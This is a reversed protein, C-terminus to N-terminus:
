KIDFSLVKNKTTVYVTNGEILVNKMDSFDGSTYRGKYAGDKGIIVVYKDTKSAVLVDKTETDTYVIDASNLNIPLDKIAFDQKKGSTFKRLAGGEALVYIDSDIRFSRPDKMDEANALYSTKKGYGSATRTHKYIQDQSLLYLTTGYSDIDIAKEWGDSAKKETISNDETDFEYVAPTDTLIAITKIKALVTAGVVNGEVKGTAQLTSVKKSIKEIKTIDGTKGIAYFSNGVPYIGVVDSKSTSALDAFTAPNAQTTMTITGLTTDIESLKQKAEKSFFKSKTMEDAMKRADELIAAAKQKENKGALTNAETLKGSLQEYKAQETKKTQADAQGKKVLFAYPILIIIVIIAVALYYTKKMEPLKKKTKKINALQTASGYLNGLNNLISSKTKELRAKSPSEESEKIRIESKYEPKKFKEDTGALKEDTEELVPVEERHFGEIEEETDMLVSADKGEKSVYKGYLAASKLKIFKVASKSKPLLTTTYFEALMAAGLRLYKFIKQLVNTTQEALIEKKTTGQLWIEDPEEDLTENALADPTLFEAIVAANQGYSGGLGEILDAVYGIAIKPHYKMVYKSVEDPTVSALIGSSLASIKDGEVIDGSTINVFTRLPNVSDGSMDETIHSEKGSRYLYAESKGTQTIHITNDAFVALITNLKGMWYTNGSNTYEGLEENIKALASEFSELPDKDLDQYYEGHFTDLILEILDQSHKPNGNVDIVGFLLGHRREDPDKPQHEYATCVNSSTKLKQSESSLKATRLALKKNM